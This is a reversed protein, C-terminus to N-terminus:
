RTKCRRLNIVFIAISVFLNMLVLYVFGRFCGNNIRRNLRDYIECISSSMIDPEIKEYSNALAEMYKHLIEREREREFARKTM